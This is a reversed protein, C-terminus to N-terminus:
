IPAKTIPAFFIGTRLKRWDCNREDQFTGLKRITEPKSFHELELHYTSFSPKAM